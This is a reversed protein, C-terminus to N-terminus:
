ALALVKKGTGYVVNWVPQSTLKTQVGLTSSPCSPQNSVSPVYDCVEDVGLTCAQPNAINYLAYNQGIWSTAPCAAVFNM